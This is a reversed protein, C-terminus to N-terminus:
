IEEDYDEAEEKKSKKFIDKLVLAIGVVILSMLLFQFVKAILLSM